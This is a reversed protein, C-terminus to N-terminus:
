KKGKKVITALGFDTLSPVFTVKGDRNKQKTIMVNELKIDRHMYGSKHIYGLGRLLKEIMNSADRETFPINDDSISSLAETMNGDKIFELVVYITDSDELLDMTHVIYPHSM